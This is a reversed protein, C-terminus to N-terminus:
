DDDEVALWPQGPARWGIPLSRIKVYDHFLSDPEDMSTKLRMAEDPSVFAAVVVPSLVGCETVFHVTGDFHPDAGKIQCSMWNVEVGPWQEKFRERLKLVEEKNPLVAIIPDVSEMSTRAFVVFVSKDHQWIFRRKLGHATRCILSRM